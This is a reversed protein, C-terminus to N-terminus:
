KLHRILWLLGAEVVVVLVADVEDVVGAVVVVVVAAVVVVLVGDLLVVEKVDEVDIAEELLEVVSPPDDAAFAVVARPM